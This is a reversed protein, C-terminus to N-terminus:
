VRKVLSGLLSIMGFVLFVYFFAKAIGSIVPIVDTFVLRGM